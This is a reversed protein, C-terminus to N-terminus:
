SQIISKIWLYDVEGKDVAENLIESWLSTKPTNAYVVPMNCLIFILCLFKMVLGKKRSLYREVEETVFDSTDGMHYWLERVISSSVFAYESATPFFVTELGPMLKKNTLAM